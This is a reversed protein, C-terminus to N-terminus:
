HLLQGERFSFYRRDGIIIHDLVPINLIQGCECLRKTLILDEKSPSPDGSPHNHLLVINVAENKLAELFLERPSVLSSSVSGSFIQRDCILDGKTNLMILIIREQKEHRLDEMYYDAITDPSTFCLKRGATSKAIRRSLEAVCLIQIGKVKGIGKQKMLEALTFGCIGQIGDRCIPTHLLRRALDLASCGKSGTRLIVALLEADSLAGPGYARCKEYPREDSPIEKMLQYTKYNEM